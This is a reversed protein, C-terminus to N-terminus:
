SANKTKSTRSIRRIYTEYNERINEPLKVKIDSLKIDQGDLDVIKM